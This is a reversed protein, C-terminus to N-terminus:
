LEDNIPVELESVMECDEEVVSELGERHMQLQELM